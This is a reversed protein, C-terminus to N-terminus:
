AVEEHHEDGKHDSLNVVRGGDECEKGACVTLALCRRPDDCEEDEEM